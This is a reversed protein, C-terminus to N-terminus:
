IFPVRGINSVLPGWKIIEVEEVFRNGFIQPFGLAQWKDMPHLIHLTQLGLDGPIQSDAVVNDGVHIHAQVGENNLDNKIMHWMTGNDKRKQEESSVLLRYAGVVGAKKLILAIQDRSYYTDSIIWLVHGFSGLRNFLDVMEDKAVLMELDLEFERHMLRLCEDSDIFLQVGIELYIEAIRVDGSYNSRRRLESETSNRVDLFQKASSVLRREVLEKGLKLKAYDPYTHTRRVLTDFIDFTIHTFNRLHSQIEEITQRYYMFIYSPDQTFEGSNPYYYFQEFGNHEALKGLVRELAHLMSGDNPLPEAPFDEYRYKHGLIGKLASPRAWFMGGAPYCMFDEKQEIALKEHWENLYHKNMTSHNVWSPMMWFTTPYYLGFKKNDAFLNLLRTTVTPDKILYETLYDSWQTQERGSYLSKKSHAHCFIDYEHLKEGYEVLLPGFNRGRNPAIRIEVNKVKPHRKFVAYAEEPDINESLTILVDIAVPFSNLADAFREIYDSYFIHLCFAIKLRKAKDTLIMSTSINHNPKWRQIAPVVHRGEFIGSTLYHHLPSTQSHYVDSYMKHYTETDFAPSPNVTCFVSKRLYDAFTERKTRRQAGYQLNYWDADFLGNEEAQILLHDLDADAISTPTDVLISTIQQFELSKPLSQGYNRTYHGLPNITLEAVEPHRARYDTLLFGPATYRDERYGYAVFHLFPNFGIKKVDANSELYFATNFCPHPDLGVKWGEQLYHPIPDAKKNGLKKLQQRYYIKDFAGSLEIFKAAEHIARAKAKREQKFNFAEAKTTDITLKENM